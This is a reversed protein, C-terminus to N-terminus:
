RNRVMKWMKQPLFIIFSPFVGFWRWELLWSIMFPSFKPRFFNLCKNFAPNRFCNSSCEAALNPQDVSFMEHCLLCIRTLVENLAPRRYAQFIFFLLNRKFIAFFETFISSFSDFIFKWQNKEIKLTFVIIILLKGSLFGGSVEFYSGSVKLVWFNDISRSKGALTCYLASVKCNRSQHDPRCLSFGILAIIVRSFVSFEFFFSSFKLKKWTMRWSSCGLYRHHCRCHHQYSHFSPFSCYLFLFLIELSSHTILTWITWLSKM